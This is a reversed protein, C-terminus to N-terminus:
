MDEKYEGPHYDEWAARVFIPDHTQAGCRCCTEEDPQVLRYPDRGPNLLEWCTPCLVHTWKGDHM